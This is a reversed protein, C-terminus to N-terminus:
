SLRDAMSPAPPHSVAHPHTYPTIFHQYFLIPLVLLWALAKMVLGFLTKAARAVLTAARSFATAVAVLRKKESM